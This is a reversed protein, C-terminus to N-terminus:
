KILGLARDYPAQTVDPVERYDRVLYTLGDLDQVQFSAQEGELMLHLLVRRGAVRRDPWSRGARHWRRDLTVLQAGSVIRGGPVVVCHSCEEQIVGRVRGGGALCDGIVVDELAKRGGNELVVQFQPDLGLGYDEVPTWDEGVPCGLAREAAAQAEAVVDPDESEEYDTFVLVSGDAAAIPIRNNTTGLCIIRSLEEAATAEPHAQAPVWRGEHQVAHNGSVHVGRLRVMPSGRGSFRYLSTVRAGNELVEGIRINQIERLAGGRVPVLTDPAFCCIDEAGALNATFTVLPHCAMNQGFTIASIGAFTFAMFLGHVRGFIEKVKVVGLRVRTGILSFSNAFNVVFASFGSLLHAVGGEVAEAKQYVGDVVGAVKEVGKYIPVMVGASHQKVAEGICFNVTEELDHGYFKAFPTISPMCRYAGWHTTIEQYNAIELLIWIVLGFVATIAFLILISPPERTLSAPTAGRRLFGINRLSKAAGSVMEFPVPRAPVAAAVAPVSGAVPLEIGGESM